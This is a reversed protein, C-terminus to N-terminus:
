PRCCGPPRLRAPRSARAPRGSGVPCASRSSSCGRLRSRRGGATTLVPPTTGPRRPGAAIGPDLERLLKRQIARAYDRYDAAIEVFAAPGTILQQEFYYHLTEVENLIALGNVTVGLLEAEARVVALATGNNNRGDGSVDIVQREARCPCRGLLGLGHRLAGSISTAGDATRREVQALRTAFALSSATGEIITWPVSVIQAGAQSWHTVVVALRGRPLAEIAAIVAPSTFAQALGGIQQGFEARDVSYSADVALVLALDVQAGGDTQGRALGAGTAVWALVGLVVPLRGLM